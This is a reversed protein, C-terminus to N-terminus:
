FKCTGGKREGRVWAALMQWEADDRSQWRRPGNHTYSGGGDPHLPKLLFRSQQPNGPVILRRMTQFARRAEVDNWARRGEAPVPAFGAFGSGHCNSCKIHGDRPNAFVNQVCSRFFEFDVQPDAAPVYRDAPLSRIWALVTQYEPDKHSRWYTGGTHGPGGAAPDLPKLLLWSSEPNRTNLLKTIMEFNLRSQDATWGADSAPTELDFRVSTQWTHCMVCAAYGPMSGGRDRLFLPEITTRFSDVDASRSPVSAPVAGPAQTQRPEARTSATLCFAMFFLIGVGSM